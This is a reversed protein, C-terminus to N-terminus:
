LILKLYINNIIAKKHQVYSVASKLIYYIIRHPTNCVIKNTHTECKTIM